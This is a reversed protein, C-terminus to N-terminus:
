ATPLLTDCSKQLSELSNTHSRIVSVNATEFVVVIVVFAGLAKHFTFCSSRSSCLQSRRKQKSFLVDILGVVELCYALM